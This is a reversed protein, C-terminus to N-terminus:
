FLLLVINLGRRFMHQWRTGMRLIILFLPSSIRSCFYSIRKIPLDHLQLDTCRRTHVAPVQGSWLYTEMLLMPILGVDFANLVGWPAAVLNKIVNIMLPQLHGFKERIM